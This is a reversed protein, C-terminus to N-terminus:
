QTPLREGDNARNLILEGRGGEPVPAMVWGPTAIVGGGRSPSGTTPIEMEWEEESGRSVLPPTPIGVGKPTPTGNSTMM